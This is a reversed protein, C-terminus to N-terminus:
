FAVDLIDAAPVWHLAGDRVIGVRRQLPDIRVVRGTVQRNGDEDFLTLAVPRGSQVACALARSIREAEQEDLQPRVQKPIQRRRRLYAEKHEPLMMRSSEFLGNGHLKRSM